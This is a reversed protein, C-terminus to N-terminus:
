LILERVWQAMQGAGLFPKIANEYMHWSAKDENVGRGQARWTTEGAKAEGTCPTCTHTMKHFEQAEKGWRQVSRLSSWWLKGKWCITLYGIVDSQSISSRGISHSVSLMQKLIFFSTFKRGVGDKGMSASQNLDPHMEKVFLFWKASNGQKHTKQTVGLINKELKNRVYLSLDRLCWVGCSRQCM